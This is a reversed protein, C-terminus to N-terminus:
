EFDWSQVVSSLTSYQAATQLAEMEPFGQTVVNMGLVDIKGLQLPATPSLVVKVCQM